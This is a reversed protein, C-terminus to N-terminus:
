LNSARDIEEKVTTVTWYGQDFQTPVTVNRTCRWLLGNYVCYDGVRYTKITSYEETSDIVSEEAAEPPLKFVPCRYTADGCFSIFKQGNIKFINGPPTVEGLM